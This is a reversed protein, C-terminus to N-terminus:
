KCEYIATDKPTDRVLQGAGKGAMSIFNVPWDNLQPRVLRDADRPLRARLLDGSRELARGGLAQLRQELVAGGAGPGVGVWGFTWDRNAAGSQRVLTDIAGPAALWPHEAAIANDTENPDDQPPMPARAMVGDFETISYGPPAPGQAAGGTGPPEARPEFDPPAAAQSAQRGATSEGTIEAIAARVHAEAPGHAAEPRQVLWWLAAIAALAGLVAVLM